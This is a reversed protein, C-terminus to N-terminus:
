QNLTLETAQQKKIYPLYHKLREEIMNSVGDSTITGGSIADVGHIDGNAGGKIAKVSKFTGAEDFLKKGQYQDTFFSQTIEAGLGPTEGKHDFVAGYITNFDEELSVYGWIADWLGAGRLPIIYYTKGELKAVFLPFTQAEKKSMEKKLEVDFAKAGNVMEGEATLVPQSVIYQDFSKSAEERSMKLKLTKLINQMKEQKVNAQQYPKLSIAVSSLLAAVVVVLIISFILTYSNKNTDM